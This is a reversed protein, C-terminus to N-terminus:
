KFKRRVLRTLVRILHTYLSPTDSRRFQDGLVDTWDSRERRRGEIGVGTGKGIDARYKFNSGNRGRKHEGLWSELVKLQVIM